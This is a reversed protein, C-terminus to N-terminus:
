GLNDRVGYMGEGKREGETRGDFAEREKRNDEEGKRREKEGGRRGGLNNIVHEIKGHEKPQM